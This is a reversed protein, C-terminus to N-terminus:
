LYQKCWKNPMIKPQITPVEHGLLIWQKITKYPGKTMQNKFITQYM